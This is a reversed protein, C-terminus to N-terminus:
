PPTLPRHSAKTFETQFEPYTNAQPYQPFKKALEPPPRFFIAADAEAFMATDNHSDGAAICRYYLSKFALVAQRKPNAQRLHYAAIQGRDDITLNHCLLTPHGLKAMFPAAFQYFTDSLIVVQFHHRLWNLFEPAGDLPDLTAIVAQIEKLGLNHQKLLKLRNRMLQDYDPIQRTTTALEPIGTQKAVAVWIEPTLVGELDLCAIEM